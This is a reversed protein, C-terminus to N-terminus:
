GRPRDTVDDNLSGSRFAAVTFPVDPFGADALAPALAPLAAAVLVRDADVEIRVARGLDRVRLDRAPVGARQMLAAVAREARDVRALRPPDVPIGYRIRSALCPAAPKNWTPLGWSRSVARVDGKTFGADLLPTLVGRERGAVVGPRHPDAADDANSGTALLPFGHHTAARALGDLVTSKCFYCRNPTNARYAADDTERTRPALHPVGLSAALSRAAGLEGTALSASDATLAIVNNPGLSRAAAALVLASDAGGSFAVALRGAASVAALLREARDDPEAIV